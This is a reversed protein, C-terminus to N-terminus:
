CRSGLYDIKTIRWSSSDGRELDTVVLTRPVGKTEKLGSKVNEVGSESTDQCDRIVAADATISAIKPKLVPIGYLAKGFAAHSSLTAVVTSYAPGALYQNLLRNRSDEPLRSAEPLAAFFTRYRNLVQDRADAISPTTTAHVASSPTTSHTPSLPEAQGRCGALIAILILWWAGAWARDPARISVGTVATRDVERRRTGPCAAV